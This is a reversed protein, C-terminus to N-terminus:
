AKVGQVLIEGRDVAAQLEEFIQMHTQNMQKWEEILVPNESKCGECDCEIM